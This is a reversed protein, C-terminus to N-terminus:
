RMMGPLWLSISPFTILIALTLVDMVLFWLIGRFIDGLEIDPFQGKIIYVNIGMPPTIVAIEMLKIFIIGCLIGNFGLGSVLIPYVLPITILTISTPDLFMGLPIYAFCIGALILYRSVELGGILGILAPLLRSATIFLGFIGAGWIFAFIMANLKVTDIFATKLRAWNSKGRWIAIFVMLLAVLSGLAGVETATAIGTYLGGIVVGFLLIVGWANFLSLLREKWSITREPLPALKPNKRCRAYVMCMYMLVSLMGPLIGAIFLKGISEYTLIGYLVLGISPPILLGVTGASALAGTALRTDYGYKQMEPVAIRGMAAVEAASSGTTAAFLGCAGITVMVLGGHFHSLWKYAMDYADSAIGSAFALQGMLIFLPIVTLAYTMVRKVPFEGIAYTLVETGELLAIGVVGTIALSFAVPVGIFILLLLLGVSMAVLM